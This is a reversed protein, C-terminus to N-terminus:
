KNLEVLREVTKRNRVLNEVYRKGDENEYGKVLESKKAGQQMGANILHETEAEIETETVKIKEIKGIESLALGIKVNKEAQIKLDKDFEEKTKKVRKLYDEVNTGSLSLGKTFEALLRQSENDILGQPIDVKIGEVVKELLDNQYKRLIEQEKQNLIATKFRKKLDAVDKAGLKKAFSQDIKPLIVEKINNIKVAFDIEKGKTEEDPFDKPMRTTFEKEEGKKMELLEKEFGPIFKTEGVIFPFNKSCLKDLKVGRIKGEFNIEAWDGKKLGEKKDKHEAMQKQLNALSAKLDNETIKGKEKKVKLGKYDPLKAKPMIEAELSFKLDKNKEFQKITVKPRNVPFTKSKAFALATTQPLVLDLAESDIRAEGAKEIVRMKPAKGKRFGPIDIESNLKEVAQERFKDLEKKSLTVNLKIKSKPLKKKEVKLEMNIKKNIFHPHWSAPKSHSTALQEAGESAKGWSRPMM